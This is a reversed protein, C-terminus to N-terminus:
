QNSEVFEKKNYKSYKNLKSTDTNKIKDKVERAFETYRFYQDANIYYKIYEKEADADRFYLDVLFEIVEKDTAKDYDFDKYLDQKTCRVRANNRWEDEDSYEAIGTHVLVGNAFYSWEEELFDEKIGKILLNYTMVPTKEMYRNIEAIKIKNSNSDVVFDGKELTPYDNYNTVSKYGDITYVPHYSNFKLKTGNELTIETIDLTKPHESADKVVTTIKREKTKVNEVVIKDGVEIDKIRKTHGEYDITILTGPDFCCWDDNAYYLQPQITTSSPIEPSSEANAARIYGKYVGSVRLYVNPNSGSEQFVTGDNYTSSIFQNWTMGPEYSYNYRTIVTGSTNVYNVVFKGTSNCKNYLDDLAGQVNTASSGSSSNNYSVESSQYYIVAYVSTGMIILGVILGFIFIQAKSRKKLFDKIKNIM